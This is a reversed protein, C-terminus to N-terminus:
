RTLGRNIDISAEGIAPINTMNALVEATHYARIPSGERKLRGAINLLCGLDAALVTDAESNRINNVKDSVMRGSIEPYKVCFTGGFGCCINTEDMEILDLGQVKHLLKRPQAHVGLERLSSCSDHYTIRGEYRADISDMGRIDSLFSLLEHCRQSFDQARHQWQPDDQFLQTYHQKLMGTCSGSPAVVYDYDQFATIVQRAIQKAHVVDGNNYAPQGCCTQGQPVEVRCGTDELLKVSAFGVNPRFLDVLCTVFLGVHPQDEPHHSDTNQTMETMLM